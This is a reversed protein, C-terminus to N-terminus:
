RTIIDAVKKDQPNVILLENNALLAYQYRRLEPVKNSAAMPVPYTMLASPVTAGVKATFKAPVKEKIAQKSIDQWATKRQKNTLSLSDQLPSTSLPKTLNKDPIAGSGAAMAISLGSLLAVSTATLYKVTRM